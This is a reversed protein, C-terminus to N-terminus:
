THYFCLLPIVHFYCRLGSSNFGLQGCLQQVDLVMAKSLNCSALKCPLITITQCLNLPNLALFHKDLRCNLHCICRKFINLLECQCYSHIWFQLTRDSQETLVTHSVVNAHSVDERCCGCSSLNLFVDCEGDKVSLSFIEWGNQTWTRKEQDLEIHGLWHKEGKSFRLCRMAIQGFWLVARM